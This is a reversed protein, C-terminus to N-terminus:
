AEAFDAGYFRATLLRSDGNEGIAEPRIGHVNLLLVNVNPAGVDEVPFKLQILDDATPLLQHKQSEDNVVVRLDAFDVRPHPQLHLCCIQRRDAGHPFVFQVRRAGGVWCFLRGCQDREIEYADSMILGPQDVSYAIPGGPATAPIAARPRSPEERRVRRELLSVRAELLAIRGMLDSPM